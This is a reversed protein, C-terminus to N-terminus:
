SRKEVDASCYAQNQAKGSQGRSIGNTMLDAMALILMANVNGRVVRTVRSKLTEDLERWHLGFAAEM